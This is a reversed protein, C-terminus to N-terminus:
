ESSPPTPTNLSAATTDNYAEFEDIRCRGTETRNVVLRVKDTTRAVIPAIFGMKSRDNDKTIARGPIAGGNFCSAWSKTKRDWYEITFRTITSNPHERIMFENVTRSEGFDIELWSGDSEAPIWATKLQGDIARDPGAAMLSSSASARADLALNDTSCAEGLPKIRCNVFTLGQRSNTLQEEPSLYFRCNRWEIESRGHVNHIAVKPYRNEKVRKAKGNLVCNEMVIERNHTPGSAGYCSLFGPGDTDHFLCDRVLIRYCDVEFDFSQGDGSVMGPEGISVFGWESNEFVMDRCRQIMSGAVGNFAQFRRGTDHFVCNRVAGGDVGRLGLQWQKGEETRCGDIVLNGFSYKGDANKNWNDPNNTWVASLLREFRCNKITIDSMVLRQQTDDTWLSIGISPKTKLYDHYGCYFTSDHIYCDEIWLHKKPEKDARYHAFIGSRYRSMELGLIRYGEVDILHIGIRDQNDDLGDLIPKSGNGYSAITIPNNPTGSGKPALTDNPWTDGRKLLVSDGARYARSARALTKWPGHTGDHSPTLGDWDDSGSSQSVYYTAASAKLVPGSALSLGAVVLIVAGPISRIEYQRIQNKM